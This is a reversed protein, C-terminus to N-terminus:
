LTSPSGLWEGNLESAQEKVNNECPKVKTKLTKPTKLPHYLDTGNRDQSMCLYDPSM